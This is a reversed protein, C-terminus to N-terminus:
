TVLQSWIRKSTKWGSQVNVKPFFVAISTSQALWRVLATLLALVYLQYDSSLM